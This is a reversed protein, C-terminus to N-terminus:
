DLNLDWNTGCLIYFKFVTGFRTLLVDKISFAFSIPKESNVIGPFLCTYDTSLCLRTPCLVKSKTSQFRIIDVLHVDALNYRIQPFFSEMIRKKRKMDYSNILRTALAYVFLPKSLMRQM